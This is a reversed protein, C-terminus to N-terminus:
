PDVVTPGSNTYDQILRYELYGYLSYDKQGMVRYQVGNYIVCDDNRLKLAIEAHLWFWSWDRQGEPVILLDRSSFPQWVGQFNTAVANEDVVGGEVTKTVVLFQMPQFWGQLANSVNPVTGSNQNLPINKANVIKM